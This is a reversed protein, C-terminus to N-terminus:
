PGDLLGAFGLTTVNSANFGFAISTGCVYM